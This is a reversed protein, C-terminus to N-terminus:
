IDELLTLHPSYSYKSEYKEYKEIASGRNQLLSLSTILSPILETISSIYSPFFDKLARYTVDSSIAEARIAFSILLVNILHM